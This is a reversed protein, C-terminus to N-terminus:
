KVGLAFRSLTKFDDYPDLPAHKSSDICAGLGIEIACNSKNVEPV